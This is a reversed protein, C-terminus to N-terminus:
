VQQEGVDDHGAHLSFFEGVLDADELGVCPHDEHGAVGLAEEARLADQFGADVEDLFGEGFGGEESLQVFNEVSADSCALRRPARGLSANMVVGGPRAALASQAAASSANVSADNRVASKASASRSNVSARSRAARSPSRSPSASAIVPRPIVQCPRLIVRSASPAASDSASTAASSSSM